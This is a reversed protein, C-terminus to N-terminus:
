ESVLALSRGRSQPSSAEQPLASGLWGAKDQGVDKPASRTGPTAEGPGSDSHGTSGLVGTFM